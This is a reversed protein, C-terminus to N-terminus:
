SLVMLSTLDSAWLLAALIVGLTTGVLEACRADRLSRRLVAGVIPLATASAVLLAEGLVVATVTATSASWALLLLPWSPAILALNATVAPRWGRLAGIRSSLLCVAAARVTWLALLTDTAARSADSAWDLDLRTRALWYCAMVIALVLGISAAIRQELAANM